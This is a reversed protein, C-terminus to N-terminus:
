RGYEEKKRVFGLGAVAVAIMIFVSAGLTSQCGSKEGEATTDNATSEGETEASATTQEETVEDTETEVSATTQEETVEDTETGVSEIERIEGCENCSADSDDDYVHGNAPIETVNAKDDCRSCHHSQSGVETCTPALDVTWDAAYDHGLKDIIKDERLLEADCVSCYVVSDYSGEATCTADLKNEVVADAPTHGKAAITRTEKVHCVSCKREDTGTATCTPAQIEYWEGFRHGNAPIV